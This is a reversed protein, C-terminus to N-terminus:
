RKQFKKLYDDATKITPSQEKTTSASPTKSQQLVKKWNAYHQKIAKLTKVLQGQSQGKNLSGLAAQLFELERVAIQGLAGGTPSAARMEALENFGINAKITDITNELDYAKTGPIKGMVTGTLGTTAFGTQSLAEDIKSSVIDAKQLAIELRATEKKTTTEEKKAERREIGSLRREQVDVGPSIGKKEDKTTGDTYVIRIRDGFDITKEISKSPKMGAKIIGKNAENSGSMIVRETQQQEPTLQRPNVYPMGATLKTNALLGYKDLGSPLSERKALGLLGEGQPPTFPQSIDTVGGTIPPIGTIALAASEDAKKGFIEETKKTLNELNEGIEKDGLKIQAAIDSMGQVDGEKKFKEFQSMTQSFKVKDEVSANSYLKFLEEMKEPSFGGKSIAMLGGDTLFKSRMAPDKITLSLKLTQDFLKITTEINGQQKNYQLQEEARKDQNTALTNQFLQQKRQEALQEQQLSLQRMNIGANLGSLLGQSIAGANSGWGEPMDKVEEM